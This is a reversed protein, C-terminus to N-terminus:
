EAGNRGMEVKFWKAGRGVGESDILKRKKLYSLDDGITRSAIGAGLEEKIERLPRKTYNYLIDLIKKQRESIHEFNEHDTKYGGRSLPAKFKFQVLIGGSQEVFRPEPVDNERCLSIMQTTGTGWGEILGRSYFVESIHPNRPISDHAHKLDEIKLSKPLSGYNWIELRDDFIALSISSSQNQYDRHCIANIISERLAIIPVPLKDIRKFSEGKLFGELPLHKRLFSSAEEIIKFANGYVRQNDIFGSLKDNGQFRAMKILLQPYDLLKEKSFLVLAGHTIQGNKILDFRKLVSLLDKQAIGFPIRSANIGENITERIIESDLHEIGYGEAPFDEWSHTHYGREVILQEYREQSMRITTNQNRQFARGDYSYPAHLGPSVKLYIVKRSTGEGISIYKIDVIASPELKSIEHAIDRQTSDSIDQGIIKGNDTVGILTTGGEGNLFGCISEFASHLQATSKKFEVITSEGQFAFHKIDELTM